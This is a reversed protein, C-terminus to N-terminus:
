VIRGCRRAVGSAADSLACEEMGVSVWFVSKESDALGGARASRVKKERARGGASLMLFVHPVRGSTVRRALGMNGRACVVFLTRGVRM